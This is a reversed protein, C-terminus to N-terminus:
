VVDLLCGLQDRLEGDAFCECFVLTLRHNAQRHFASELDDALSQRLERLQIASAARMLSYRRM